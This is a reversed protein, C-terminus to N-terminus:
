AGHQLGQRAKELMVLFGFAADKFDANHLTGWYRQIYSHLFEAIHGLSIVTHKEDFDEM